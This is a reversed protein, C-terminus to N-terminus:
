ELRKSKKQEGLLFTVFSFPAVLSILPSMWGNADSVFNIGVPTEKSESKEQVGAAGLKKYFKL